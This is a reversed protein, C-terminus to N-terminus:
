PGASKLPVTPFAHDEWADMGGTLPRVNTIGKQALSMALRASAIEHPCNCFVVVEQPQGLSVLHSELEARALRRAGPITHPYLKAELPHRLDVVMISDGRDLRTKLEEVTIRSVAIDRLMRWRQVLKYNMYLAFGGVVVVPVMFRGLRLVPASLQQIEPGFLYGISLPAGAWLVAGTLTLLLYREPPMGSMGALPQAMVDLGPLFRLVILSWPGLKAFMDQTRRVCADPELALQCVRRLVSIGRLRGAVYWAGHGALSAVVSLLFLLPGHLTGAQALAGAALLFPLAPLPLGSQDALVILTLMIYGHEAILAQVNM